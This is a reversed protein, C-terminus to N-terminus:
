ATAAFRYIGNQPAEVIGNCAGLTAVQNRGRRKALYLAEDALQLLERGRLADEPFSAVGLSITVRGMPQTHALPFQHSAVARRLKEAVTKAHSLDIEPLLIVFEEGGFRAVIDAKRLSAELIKAVDRLVDDGHLHGHTDNFMKFHDIDVMIVSLQRNYRQSRLMEREFREYFYRRNFIKTLEDTISLEKAKQFILIKDIVRALHEGIKELLHLENESFAHPERRYLLITGLPEDTTDSRLPLCLLSGKNTRLAPYYTYKRHPKALDAIYIKKNKQLAEGFISEDLGFADRHQQLKRFGFWSRMRLEQSSNDLLLLVYHEFQFMKRFLQKMAKLTADLDMKKSLSATVQYLCYLEFMREDQMGGPRAVDRADIGLGPMGDGITM